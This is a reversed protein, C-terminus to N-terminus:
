QGVASLVMNELQLAVAHRDQNFTAADNTAGNISGLVSTGGMGYGVNVGNFTKNVSIVSDSDITTSNDINRTVTVGTGGNIDPTNTQADTTQLDTASGGVGSAWAPVSGFALGLAMVAALAYKTGFGSM